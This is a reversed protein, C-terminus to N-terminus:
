PWANIRPTRAAPSRGRHHRLRHLPRPRHGACRKADCTCTPQFDTAKPQVGGSEKWRANFGAHVHATATRNTPQSISRAYRRTPTAFMAPPRGASPQYEVAWCETPKSGVTQTQGKRWQIMKRVKGTM